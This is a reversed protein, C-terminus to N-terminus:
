NGIKNKISIPNCLSFHRYHLFRTMHGPQDMAKFFKFNKQPFLGSEVTGPNSGPDNSQRDVTRILQAVCANLM